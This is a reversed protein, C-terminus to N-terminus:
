ILASITACVEEAYLLGIAGATMRVHKLDVVMTGTTFLEGMHRDKLVLM